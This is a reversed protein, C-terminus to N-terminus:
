SRFMSELDFKPRQLIPTGFPNMEVSDSANSRKKMFEERQLVDEPTLVYSKFEQILREVSKCEQDYYHWFIPDSERDKPLPTRNKLWLHYELEDFINVYTREVYLSMKM